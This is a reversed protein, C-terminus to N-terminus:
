SYPERMCDNLLKSTLCRFRTTWSMCRTSFVVLTVCQKWERWNLCKRARGYDRELKWKWDNFSRLSHLLSFNATDWRALWRHRRVFCMTSVYLVRYQTRLHLVQFWLFLIDRCSDKPIGGHTPQTLDPSMVSILGPRNTKLLGEKHSKDTGFYSEPPTTM